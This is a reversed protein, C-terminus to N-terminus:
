RVVVFPGRSFSALLSVLRSRQATWKFGGGQARCGGDAIEDDDVDLEGVSVDMM